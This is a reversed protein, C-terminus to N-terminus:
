KIGSVKIEDTEGTVVVTITITQDKDHKYGNCLAHLSFKLQHVEQSGAKVQPAQYAYVASWTGKGIGDPDLEHSVNPEGASELDSKGLKIYYRGIGALPDNGPDQIEDTFPNFPADEGSATVVVTFFKGSKVVVVPKGDGDTAKLTVSDGKVPLKPTQYERLVPLRPISLLSAANGAGFSTVALGVIVITKLSRARGGNQKQNM